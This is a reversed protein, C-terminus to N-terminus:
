NEVEKFNVEIKLYAEIPPELYPNWKASENIPLSYKRKHTHSLKCEFIGKVVWAYETVWRIRKFICGCSKVRYYNSM